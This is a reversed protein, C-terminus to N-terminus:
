KVKVVDQPHGRVFMSAVEEDTFVKAKVYEKLKDQDIVLKSCDNVLDHKVLITHASDENFVVSVRPEVTICGLETRISYVGKDNPRYAKARDISVKRFIKYLIDAFDKIKDLEFFSRHLQAEPMKLALLEVQDENVKLTKLHSLNAGTIRAINGM